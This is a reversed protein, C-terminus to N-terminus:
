NTVIVRKIIIKNKKQKEDRKDIRRPRNEDQSSREEDVGRHAM